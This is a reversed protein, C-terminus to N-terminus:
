NIKELVLKKKRKKEHGNVLEINRNRVTNFKSNDDVFIQSAVSYERHIGQQHEDPHKAPFLNYWVNPGGYSLEM